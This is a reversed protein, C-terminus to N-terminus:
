YHQTTGERDETGRRERHSVLRLLALPLTLLGCPLGARHRDRGAHEKPAYRQHGEQAGAAESRGQLQRCSSRAKIFLPSILKRVPRMNNCSKLARLSARCPGPGDQKQLCTKLLKEKCFSSSPQSSDAWVLKPGQQRHGGLREPLGWHAGQVAVYEKYCM